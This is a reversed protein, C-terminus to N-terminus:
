PCCLQSTNSAARTRSLPMQGARGSRTPTFAGPLTRYPPILRGGNGGARRLNFLDEPELGSVVYLTLRRQKIV